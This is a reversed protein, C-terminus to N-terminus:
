LKDIITFAGSKVIKNSEIVGRVSTLPYISTNKGILTGPNLVCNCGVEVYDGIIAGMKLLGTSYTKDDDKVVIMQHDSKFNSTIAGAGLHAKYGLISDGVYNFHPVQVSDCLIVNKLECSNGVVCDNGILCNGRLFVGVRITTNEGIILPAILTASKAITASRHVWIDKEIEIYESSLNKAIELIYQQISNINEWPKTKLLPGALTKDLSIYDKIHM